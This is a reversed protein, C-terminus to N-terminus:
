MSSAMSGCRTVSHRRRRARPSSRPFRTPPPQASGRIPRSRGPQSPCGSEREPRARGVPRGRCAPIFPSALVALRALCRALAALTADLAAADGSKALAWPAQREVFANAERSSTGPPPPARPPAAARGDGGAYRAITAEGARDLPTAEVASPVVGGRYRELMALVRSALNGFADALESTYREDFREWSFNATPTSRCRACCSTASPTPASATSPRASSWGARGGVQQVARRRPLHLRAGVRAGAAAARRGRADGALRRLPPPHHGQRDRAAAGALAGRLRGRPLGDRHPLQAARRVVGVHGAARRRGLPAPLPHGVRPALAASRSTRSGRSSSARPDRQAPERAPPLGAAGALLRRSSRSTARHLRFFWNRRTRGSWRARRTCRRVERGRDRQRAQLDRLRRLVLREYPREYFDDPSRTSSASSSRACAPRHADSRHHPHVPRLLHRPAAVDGPLPRRARRRAGAPAVGRAEAAQAVKQGHEDMGILFHVDDGRLRRYRAIADAGIKELAHGLHPDGNAYDIATTLYFRSVPERAATRRRGRRRAAAPPRGPGAAAARRAADRARRVADAPAPRPPRVGADAAAAAGPRASPALRRRQASGGSGGTARGGARRRAAAPLPGQAARRSRAGAARALPM